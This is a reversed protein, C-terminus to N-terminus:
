LEYVGGEAAPESPISAGCAGLAERFEAHIAEVQEDTCDPDHHFLLVREVGAHAAVRALCPASSHGWGRRQEYVAASYQCDHILLSAGAAFQAFRLAEGTLDPTTTEPLLENDPAFVVARDGIDIRYALTRGPHLVHLTSVSVGFAELSEEQVAVFRVSAMFAETSIPFYEGGMHREITEVLTDSSEAPGYLEFENGPVYLPKFCPLGQTHDWHYHTLFIAARLPSEGVISNGLARIGTGADFILRRKKPLLLELCTTNGGYKGLAQEPAAITGRCGWIRISTQTALMENVIRALDVPKFPKV